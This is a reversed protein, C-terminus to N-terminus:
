LHKKGREGHHGPNSVELDLRLPRQGFQESELHRLVSAKGVGLRGVVDGVQCRARPRQLIRALLDARGIFM